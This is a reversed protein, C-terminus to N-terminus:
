RPPRTLGDRALEAQQQRLSRIETMLDAVQAATAARDVANEERVRDIIWSALSGTVAGLLAIGAVMLGLAVMRGTPTVPYRDGYGVTTITTLSWWLADGFSTINADPANREADLVALAAVLSLLATAGVVYVAVRGRLSAGARRNLAGIVTVLRLLRLPRLLPLLIVALDHLHHVVYRRRDSSLAVRTAFDVAFFGWAVWTAVACALKAGQSLDPDLIPWAYAGLFAVAVAM